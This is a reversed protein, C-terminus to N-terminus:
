GSSKLIQKNASKRSQIDYEPIYEHFWNSLTMATINKTRAFQRLSLGSEVFSLYIKKTMAQRYAISNRIMNHKKKIKRLKANKRKTQWRQQTELKESLVDFNIVRGIQWGESIRKDRDVLISQQLMVNHIWMKGYTPSGTGTLKKSQSAAYKRRLWGYLKNTTRTSGMIQAANLLGTQNPFIKVLLQHAVYHEEPTLYVLNDRKNNGGQCKPVVHHRESYGTLIRTRARNMLREYIAAYNM